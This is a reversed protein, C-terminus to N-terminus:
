VMIYKWSFVYIKNYYQYKLMNEQKFFIFCDQLFVTKDYRLSEKHSIKKRKNLNRRILRGEPM